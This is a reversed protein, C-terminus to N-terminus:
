DEDVPKEQLFLGMYTPSKLISKTPSQLTGVSSSGRREEVAVSSGRRKEV